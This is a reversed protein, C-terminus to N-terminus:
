FAQGPRPGGSGPVPGLGPELSKEEVAPGRRGRGEAGEIGLARGLAMAVKPYSLVAGWPSRGAPYYAWPPEEPSDQGRAFFPGLASLLMWHREGERILFHGGRGARLRGERVAQGVKERDLRGLPLFASLAAEEEWALDDATGLRVQGEEWSDLGERIASAKLGAYALNASRQLDGGKLFLAGFRLAEEPRGKELGLVAAMLSLTGQGKHGTERMAWHGDRYLSVTLSHGLTYTRTAAHRWSVKRAWPLAELFTRVSGERLPASIELDRILRRHVDQYGERIGTLRAAMELSQAHLEETKGMLSLCEERCLREAERLALRKRGAPGSFFGPKIRAAKQFDPSPMVEDGFSLYSLFRRTRNLGAKVHWAGSHSIGLHSLASAYSLGWEYLGDRSGIFATASLRGGSDVPLILLHIHPTSEDLHLVASYCREGFRARAWSMSAEAWPGLRHSDYMGYAREGPRDSGSQFYEPSTMLCLSINLVAGKRIKEPDIFGAAYEQPTKKAQPL